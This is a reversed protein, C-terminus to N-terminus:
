ALAVMGATKAAAKVGNQVRTFGILGVFLLFLGALFMGARLYTHPDTVTSAFDAIGSLADGAGSILGTPQTTMGGGTLAGAGSAALGAGLFPKYAGSTYTTWAQWGQAQQIAYAMRMNDAPDAWNGSALLQTHSSNIQMLGYDRTGNANSSNVVDTRCGSEAHCVAVCVAVDGGKFGAGKAYGAVQADSLTAM